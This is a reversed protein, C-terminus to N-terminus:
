EDFLNLVQTECTFALGVVLGETALIFIGM